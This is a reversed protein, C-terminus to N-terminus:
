CSGGLSVYQGILKSVDIFQSLVMVGPFAKYNSYSFKFSSIVKFYKKGFRLRNVLHPRCYNVIIFLTKKKFYAIDKWRRRYMSHNILVCTFLDKVMHQKWLADYKKQNFFYCINQIIVSQFMLFCYTKHFSHLKYKLTEISYYKRDFTNDLCLIPTINYSTGIELVNGPMNKLIILTFTLSDNILTVDRFVIYILFFVILLFSVILILIKM